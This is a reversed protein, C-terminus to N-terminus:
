FRIEGFVVNNESRFDIKATFFLIIERHILRKNSNSKIFLVSIPVHFYETNTTFLPVIMSVVTKFMWVASANVNEYGKRGTTDL